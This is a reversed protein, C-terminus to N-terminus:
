LKWCNTKMRERDRGWPIELLQDGDEVQAAGLMAALPCWSVSDVTALSIADM